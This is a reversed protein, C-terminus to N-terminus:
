GGILVNESGQVIVAGYTTPDGIRAARKSNILVTASGDLINDHHPPHLVCSHIAHIDGVRGAPRGNIVVNPSAAIIPRAGCADHGTHNDGIRAAPPM